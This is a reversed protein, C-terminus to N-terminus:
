CYPGSVTWLKRGPRVTMEAGVCREDIHPLPRALARGCALPQKGIDTPLRTMLYLRPVISDVEIYEDRAHCGFGALGFSEMVVATGSRGAFEADTGGGTMPVLM